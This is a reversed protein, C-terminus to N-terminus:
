VYGLMHQPESLASRCKCSEAHAHTYVCRSAASDCRTPTSRWSSSCCSALVECCRSRASSVCTRVGIRGANNHTDSQIVM